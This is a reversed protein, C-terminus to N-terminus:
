GTKASYDRDRIPVPQGLKFVLSGPATRSLTAANDTGPNETGYAPGVVTVNGSTSGSAGHTLTFVNSDSVTVQFRGDTATGSTFDLTIYDDTALGHNPCTVTVTSGTRSYTGYLAFKGSYQSWYGKRYATAIKSVKYAMRASPSKLLSPANAGSRLVTNDQGSITSSYRMAVPKQNNYSIISASLAEDTDNGDVVTSGFVDNQARSVSVNDLLTTGSGVRAAAGHNSNAGSANVNPPITYDVGASTATSMNFNEM